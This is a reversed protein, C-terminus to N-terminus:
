RTKINDPKNKIVDEFKLFLVDVNPNKKAYDRWSQDYEDIDGWYTKGKVDHQAFDEVSKIGYKEFYGNFASIKTLFPYASAAVARPDRTICIIKGKFDQPFMPAYLHCHPLIIPKDAQAMKEEMKDYADLPQAEFPISSIGGKVGLEEARDCGLADLLSMFFHNGTKALGVVIVGKESGKMSMIKDAQAKGATMFHKPFLYGNVESIEGEALLENIQPIGKKHINM